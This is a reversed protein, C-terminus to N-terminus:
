CDFVQHIVGSAYAGSPLRMSIVYDSGDRQWQLNQIKLRLPRFGEQLHERQMLTLLMDSSEVFNSEAGVLLGAPHIDKESCRKTIDEDVVDVSFHSNSGDLIVTDGYIVSHWTDNSVREGLSRNFISSRLASLVISKEDRKRLEIEGAVWQSLRQLNNEDHGFRQSDFFNPCGHQQIFALRQDIIAEDGSVNRLRITFDNCKHNGRKLKKDHLIHSVVRYEDHEPIEYTDPKVGPLRVSFYQRTIAHRDKLGSYGVDRPPVGYFRALQKALWVTNCNTKEIYLFIHEGQGVFDWDLVEHVVFDAPESKFTGSARKDQWLLCQKINSSLKNM